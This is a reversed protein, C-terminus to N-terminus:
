ELVVVRNDERARIVRTEGESNVIRKLVVWVVLFLVALFFFRLTVPDIYPLPSILSEKFMKSRLEALGSDILEAATICASGKQRGEKTRGNIEGNCEKLIYQKTQEFLETSEITSSIACEFAWWLLIFFVVRVLHKPTKSWFLGIVVLTFLIAYSVVSFLFKTPYGVVEETAGAYQEGHDDKMANRLTDALTHTQVPNEGHNIISLLETQAASLLTTMM